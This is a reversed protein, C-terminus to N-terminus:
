PSPPPGIQRRLYNANAQGMSRLCRLIDNNENLQEIARRLLATNVARDEISTQDRFYSKKRAQFMEVYYQNELIRLKKISECYDFYM